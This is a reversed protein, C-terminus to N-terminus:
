AVPSASKEVSLADRNVSFPALDVPAAEGTLLSAMCDGLLPGFKFARGSGGSFVVVNDALKDMVFYSDTTMTYPHTYRDIRKGVSPLHEAVWEDMLKLVDNSGLYNFSDMDSLAEGTPFDVGVKVFSKGPTGTLKETATAPFVYYLGGDIGAENRFHFAQPITAAIDDDVEYHAWQVQWIDLNLQPLGASAM